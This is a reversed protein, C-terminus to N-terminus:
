LKVYTNKGHFHTYMLRIQEDFSRVQNYGISNVQLNESLTPINTSDIMVFNQSSVANNTLRSQMWDVLLQRNEGLKKLVSSIKKDDVGSKLWYQSCFDHNHLYPMRKIPAQHAFRMMAVLLLVQSVEPGFKEQLSKIEDELHSSFLGYVGYSKIDVTPIESAKEKLEFKSSQIFGEKETIKGLLHLTIKDTRKKDPNYRYEVAYKYYSGKILRIETRPEKFKQIWDPLYM